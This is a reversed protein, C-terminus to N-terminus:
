TRATHGIGHCTILNLGKQLGGGDLDEVEIKCGALESAFHLATQTHMSLPGALVQSRGEALAMFVVLQDCCHEDVAGGHSLQDLLDEAAARRSPRM